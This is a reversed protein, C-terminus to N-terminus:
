INFNNYGNEVCYAILQSKNRVCTKLTLRKIYGEVTRASLNIIEGIEKNSLGECIYKIIQREILSPSYNNKQREIYLEVENVNNQWVPEYNLYFTNKDQMLGKIINIVVASKKQCYFVNPYQKLIAAVDDQYISSYAIIPTIQNKGRIVKIAELGTMIPTFLDLIFLDNSKKYLQNILELGNNCNYVHKFQPLRTIVNKLIECFYTDPDSIIIQLQRTKNLM